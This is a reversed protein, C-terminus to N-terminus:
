RSAKALRSFKNQYSSSLLPFSPLGSFVFFICNRWRRSFKRCVTTVSEAVSLYQFVVFWFAWHHCLNGIIKVGQRAEFVQKPLIFISVPILATRRGIRRKCLSFKRQCMKTSVNMKGSSFSSGSRWVLLGSHNLVVSFPAGVKKPVIFCCTDNLFLDLGMKVCLICSNVLATGTPTTTCLVLKPCPLRWTHIPEKTALRNRAM